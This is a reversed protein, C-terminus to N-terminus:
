KATPCLFVFPTFSVQVYIHLFFSLTIGIVTVVESLVRKLLCFLLYSRHDSYFLVGYYSVGGRGM